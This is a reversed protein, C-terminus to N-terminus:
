LVLKLLNSFLIAMEETPTYPEKSYPMGYLNPMKLAKRYGTLEKTNCGYMLYFVKKEITKNEVFQYVSDCNWIGPMLAGIHYDAKSFATSAINQGYDILIFDYVGGFAEMFQEYTCYVFYDAGSLRFYTYGYSKKTKCKLMDGLCGFTPKNSLDLVAVRYHRALLSACAITNYTCGAGEQGFLAIETLGKVSIAKKSFKPLVHRKVPIAATSDDLYGLNGLLSKVNSEDTGNTMGSFNDEYVRPYGVETYSGLDAYKIGETDTIAVIKKDDAIKLIRKISAIYTTASETPPVVIVFSTFDRSLERVADLMYKKGISVIIPNTANHLVKYTDLLSWDDLVDTYPNSCIMSVGEYMNHHLPASEGTYITQMHSVFGNPLQGLSFLKYAGNSGDDNEDDPYPLEFFTPLYGNAACGRAIDMSLYNAKRTGEECIVGIVETSVKLAKPINQPIAKPVYRNLDADREMTWLIQKPMYDIFRLFDNDSLHEKANKIISIREVDSSAQSINDIWTGVTDNKELESSDVSGTMDDGAVNSVVANAVTEATDPSSMNEIAPAGAIGYYAKTYRRTRKHLIIDAINKMKSDKAFVANYFGNAFLKRMYADGRHEDNVILVIRIDENIAMLNEVDKVLYPSSSELHETIIVADVDYKHAFVYDFLSSKLNRVAVNDVQVGADTLSKAIKAGFDEKESNFGVVINM